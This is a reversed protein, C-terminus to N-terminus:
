ASLNAKRSHCALHSISFLCLPRKGILKRLNESYISDDPVSYEGSQIALLSDKFPLKLFCLTYLLCGLAWVDAKTSIELNKYLDVMEPARYALSTYRDFVFFNFYFIVDVDM